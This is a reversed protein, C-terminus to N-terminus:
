TLVVYSTQNLYKTPCIELGESDLNLYTCGVTFSGGGPGQWRGQVQYPSHVDIVTRVYECSNFMENHM